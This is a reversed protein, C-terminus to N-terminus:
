NSFYDGWVLPTPIPQHPHNTPQFPNRPEEKEALQTMNVDGALKNKQTEAVGGGGWFILM